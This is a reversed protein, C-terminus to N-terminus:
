HILYISLTVPGFIRLGLRNLKILWKCEENDILQNNLAHEPNNIIYWERATKQLSNIYRRLANYRTLSVKKITNEVTYIEKFIQRFPFGKDKNFYHYIIFHNRLFIDDNLPHKKNKGLYEYCTKWVDNTERRLQDAEGKTIDPILTSLYIFRNKLKELNTLLKGRNNMTEFCLM